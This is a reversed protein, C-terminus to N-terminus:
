TGAGMPITAEWLKDGIQRARDLIDGSETKPAPAQAPRPAPAPAGPATATQSFRQRRDLAAQMEVMKNYCSEGWQRYLKCAVGELVMKAIEGADNDRLIARASALLKQQRSGWDRDEPRSSFIWSNEGDPKALEELAASTSEIVTRLRGEEQKRRFSEEVAPKTTKWDQLAADRQQQIERIRALNHLVFGQVAPPESELLGQAEALSEAQEVRALLQAAVETQRGPVLQRMLKLSEGRIDDIRDDYKSRFAPSQELDTRGLRGELEAVQTRLREVEESMRPDPKKAEELERMTTALQADRDRIARELESIRQNKKTWANKAKPDTAVETPEPDAPLPPPEAPATPATPEGRNAVTELAAM